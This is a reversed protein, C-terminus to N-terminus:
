LGAPMPYPVLRVPQTDAELLWVRRDKFYDLLKRDQSDDMERAWVVPARDIDAENYVWDPEPWYQPDYRVIVLHRQGDRTLEALLRARERPWPNREHLLSLQSITPVITAFYLLLLARTFFLGCPRGRPRWARLHRLARVVLALVLGFIPAAYHVNTWNILLQAATFGAVILLATRMWRNRLLPPLTLLFIACWHLPVGIVYVPFYGDALVKLKKLTASLLGKATRQFYYNSIELGMHFERIAAHRYTPVPIPKQWIFPPATAYVADYAAHPLRLPDGTVRANYYCMAAATLALLLFTPLMIRNLLLRVPPADKGAMWAILVLGALLSLVM